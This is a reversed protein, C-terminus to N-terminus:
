ASANRTRSRSRTNWRLKCTEAEIAFTADLTTFYLTGEVVVPGTEFSTKAGSDYRCLPQLRRANAVTIEKLPSYRDGIYDRDYAPWDGPAITPGATVGATGTQGAICSAALLPFVFLFLYLSARFM